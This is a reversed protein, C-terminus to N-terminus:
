APAFWPDAANDNQAFVGGMMTSAPVWVMKGTGSDLIQVWPWYMAAYSTDRSGAQTTANTVSKAYNVPDIIVFNDGRAEANSIATTIQATHDSNTLGPLLLLNYRYDDQNSLLTLMDNYDSGKLGQTNTSNINHYMNM